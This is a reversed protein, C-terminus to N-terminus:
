PRTRGGTIAVFANWAPKPRFGAGTRFFGVSDCFSCSGPLDKWSFWYAAKLNLRHRNALLYGYAGQLERVQGRIGQEFAVQEFDNQSGWGMETIYLPVRDRNELTVEHLAEVLDELSATDIAYPHLAVGDFRGTLGPQEYLQALFTTAPMGRRGGATPEGFLGALIVDARPDAAKIAQSSITVLKGYREPSVPYAFYFFNPENWVQWARIPLRPVPETSEPGHEAWFVGRPGYREVAARLFAAWWARQRANDIPLTTSKRALWPPTSGISPLVHQGARAAVAVAQDFSGWQYGGEATPQIGSWVLPLRVSGIRAARMYSGDEDTLGTQPAVGFFSPPANPAAAGASAPLLLGVFALAAAATTRFSM